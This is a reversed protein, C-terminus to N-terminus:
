KEIRIEVVKAYKIDEKTIKEIKTRKQGDIKIHIIKNKKFKKEYEELINLNHSNIYWVYHEEYEYITDLNTVIKNICKKNNKEIFFSIKKITKRINELKCNKIEKKKISEELENINLSLNSEKKIDDLIKEILFNYIKDQELLDKCIIEILKVFQKSKKYHEIDDLIINLNKELEEKM